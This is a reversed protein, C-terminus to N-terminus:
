GNHALGPALNVSWGRSGGLGCQDDINFICRRYTLLLLWPWSGKQKWPVTRADAQFPPLRQAVHRSLPLPLHQAEVCQQILRALTTTWACVTLNVKHVPHRKGDLRRAMAETRRSTAGHFNLRSALFLVLRQLGAREGYRLRCCSGAASGVGRDEDHPESFAQRPSKACRMLCLLPQVNRRAPGEALARVGEWVHPVRARM